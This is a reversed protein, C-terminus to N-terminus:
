GSRRARAMSGGWVSDGIVRLECGLLHLSPPPLSALRPARWGPVLPLPQRWCGPGPAGVGEGMGAWSWAPMQLADRGCLSLRSPDPATVRSTGLRPAFRAGPIAGLTGPAPRATSRHCRNLGRSDGRWCVLLRVTPGDLLTWPVGSGVWSRLVVGPLCPSWFAPSPARTHEASPEPPLPSGWPPRGPGM